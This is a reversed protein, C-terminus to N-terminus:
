VFTNSNPGWYRYIGRYPYTKICDKLVKYINESERDPFVLHCQSNMCGFMSVNFVRRLGRHPPFANKHIYCLKQKKNRYEMVEWREIENDTEVVFWPHYAFSFPFPVRCLYLSIKM